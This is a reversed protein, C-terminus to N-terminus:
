AGGPAQVRATAGPAPEGVAGGGRATTAPMEVVPATAAPAPAEARRSLVFYAVLALVAAAVLLAGAPLRRAAPAPTNMM